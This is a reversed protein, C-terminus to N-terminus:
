RKAASPTEDKGTERKKMPLVVRRKEFLDKMLDAEVAEAGIGLVVGKKRHSLNVVLQTQKQERNWGMGRLLAAGFQDVPVKEYDTQEDDERKRSKQDSAARKTGDMQIVMGSDEQDLASEPDDGATDGRDFKPRPRTSLRAPRIITTRQSKVADKGLSAGKKHDFSDIEHVTEDEHDSDDGFASARGSTSAGKTPHLDKKRISFGVTGKEQRGLGPSKGEKRVKMQFGM